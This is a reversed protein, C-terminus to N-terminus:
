ATELNNTFILITSCEINKPPNLLRFLRLCNLMFFSVLVIPSFALSNEQYAETAPTALATLFVTAQTHPLEYSAKM